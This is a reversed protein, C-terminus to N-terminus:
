TEKVTVVAFDPCIIECSKCGDCRGADTDPMVYGKPNRRTGPFIAQKPCVTICLGCGKCYTEDILIKV